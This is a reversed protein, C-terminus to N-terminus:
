LQNSGNDAPDNKDITVQQTTQASVIAALGSAGESKPNWTLTVDPAVGLFAYIVTEKQPDFEDDDNEGSNEDGANTAMPKTVAILPAVDIKVQPQPIRIRWRNVPAQPALFSVSSQGLKKKFHELMSYNLNLNKRNTQITRPSCSIVLKQMSFSRLM